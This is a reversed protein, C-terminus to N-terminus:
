ADAYGTHNPLGNFIRSCIICNRAPPDTWGQLDLTKPVLFLINGATLLMDPSVLVAKGLYGGQCHLAALYPYRGIGSATSPM